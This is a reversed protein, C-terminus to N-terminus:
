VKSALFDKAAIEQNLRVILDEMDTTATVLRRQTTLLIRNLKNCQDLPLVLQAAGNFQMESHGVVATRSNLAVRPLDPSGIGSSNRIGANSMNSHRLSSGDSGASDNSIKRVHGIVQANVPGSFLEM